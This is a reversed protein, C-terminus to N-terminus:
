SMVKAPESAAVSSAHSSTASVVSSTRKQGTAANSMDGLATQPRRVNPAAISLETPLLDIYLLRKESYVLAYNNCCECLVILHLAM